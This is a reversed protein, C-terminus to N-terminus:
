QKKELSFSPANGAFEPLRQFWRASGDNQYTMASATRDLFFMYTRESSTQDSAVTRGTHGNITGNM